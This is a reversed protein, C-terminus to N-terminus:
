STLLADVYRRLLSTTARYHARTSYCAPRGVEDAPREIIEAATTDLVRRVREPPLGAEIAIAEATLWTEPSREITALVLPEDTV